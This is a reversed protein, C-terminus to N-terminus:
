KVESALIANLYKKSFKELIPEGSVDDLLWNRAVYANIRKAAALADDQEEYFLVKMEINHVIVIYGYRCAPKYDTCYILAKDIGSPVKIKLEPYGKRAMALMEDRSYNSPKGNFCSVFLLILVLYKM